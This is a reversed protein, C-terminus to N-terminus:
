RFHIGFAILNNTAHLLMPAYLAGTRERLYVLVLSLLFTNIGAIWLPASSSGTGLHAVGFLLSTVVMAPVFRLRSRLGSYLYGRMLTEEGIPPFFVLATFALAADLSSNLADFGVDQVDDTTLDPVFKSIIISTIILLAYFVVAGGLAGSVDRWRPLRGFGITALNLRRWKKVILVTLGLVLGEAILVYFFQVPASHDLLDIISTNPRFVALGISVLVAAIFQSFFFIILTLLIVQWPSGLDKTQKTHSSRFFERTRGSKQSNPINERNEIRSERNKKFFDVSM